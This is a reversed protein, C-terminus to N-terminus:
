DPDESNVMTGTQLYRSHHPNISDISLAEGFGLLPSLEKLFLGSCIMYLLDQITRVGSAEDNSVAIYLHRKILVKGDKGNYPGIMRKKKGTLDYIGINAEGSESSSIYISERSVTVGWCEMGLDVTHGLALLRTM